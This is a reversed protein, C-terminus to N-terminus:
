HTYAHVGPRAWSRRVDLRGTAPRLHHLGLVYLPLKQIHRICLGLNSGVDKQFMNSADSTVAIYAIHSWCIQLKYLGRYYSHLDWPDFLTAGRCSM